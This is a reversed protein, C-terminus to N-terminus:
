RALERAHGACDVLYVGEREYAAAGGWAALPV